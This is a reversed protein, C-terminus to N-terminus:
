NDPPPARGEGSDPPAGLGYRVAWTAVQVRSSLNLRRLIHETHNAVTGPTLVLRHAIQENTLGEAILGAVEQQRATLANVAEEAALAAAQRAAAEVLCRVHAARDAALGVWHAVTEVFRLDRETFFEPTASSALLVGRREGAVVLPVNVASRVGLEEVLGTVEGPEREANRTLHSRGTRFVDITWGGDAVPLRDLGLEHERRGMPTQSTGVAVLDDTAEDHLLVDVKDARLVEAVRHAARTMADDLSIADQALLSELIELLRAAQADARDEGM